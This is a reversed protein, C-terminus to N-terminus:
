EVTVGDEGVLEELRRKLEANYATNVNTLKAYTVSGNTGLRLSVEDNGSYEKLTDVVKHLRSIDSDKDESEGISIIIHHKKGNPSVAPPATQHNTTSVPSHSGTGILKVEAIVEPVSTEIMTGTGSEPTPQYRRVHDCNLQLSEDRMRVKGEIVVTNGEQWIERDTEYIRPWVMTEISGSIDEINAKIFAKHDRTFL